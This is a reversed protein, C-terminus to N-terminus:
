AALFDDVSVAAQKLIPRLTGDPMDPGFIAAVTCQGPAGNEHDETKVSHGHNSM